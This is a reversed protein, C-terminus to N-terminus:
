EDKRKQSSRMISEKESSTSQKQGQTGGGNRAMHALKTLAKTALSMFHM